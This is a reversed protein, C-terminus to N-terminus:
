CENLRYPFFIFFCVFLFVVIAVMVTKLYLIQPVSLNLRAEPVFTHTSAIEELLKVELFTNGLHSGCSGEGM